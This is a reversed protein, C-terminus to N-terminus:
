IEVCIGIENEIGNIIASKIERSTDLENQTNTVAPRPFGNHWIGMNGVELLKLFAGPYRNHFSWGSLIAPSATATSTILITNRNQFITTVADELVHRRQYTTSGVWGNEKPSYVDYIDSKIHNKLIDEAVPAVREKLIKNAKNNVAEILSEWDSFSQEAMTKEM